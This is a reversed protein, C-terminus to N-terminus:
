WCRFRGVILVNVNGPKDIPLYNDKALLLGNKKSLVRYQEGPACWDSSGHEIKDYASKPLTKSIAYCVIIWYIISYYKIGQIFDHIYTEEFIKTIPFKLINEVLHLTIGELWTIGELRAETFTYTVPAVLLIAIIFWVVLYALINKKFKEIFSKFKGM